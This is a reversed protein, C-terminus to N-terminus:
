KLIRQMKMFRIDSDKPIYHVDVMRNAFSETEHTVLFYGNTEGLIVFDRFLIEAILTFVDGEHAIIEPLNHAEHIASIFSLEKVQLGYLDIGKLLNEDYNEPSIAYWCEFNDRLNFRRDLDQLFATYLEAADEGSLQPQLRTKVQFPIPTKIFIILANSTNM